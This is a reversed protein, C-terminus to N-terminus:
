ADEGRSLMGDRALRELVQDCASKDRPRFALFYIEKLTQDPLSNLHSVAAPIIVEAVEEVAVGGDGSGLLPILISEFRKRGLLVRLLRNNEEDARTLLKVICHKLKTKDAKVGTGPRGEVAAVHFIRQVQHTAKLAGSETVLVTGINVYARQGVASRLAEAITDEILNDQEDRNAGLSRIKASISRGIIRDMMMDTNESNVWISVGRIDDIGGTKYGVTLGPKDKLRYRVTSFALPESAPPARPLGAAEVPSKGDVSKRHEPQGGAAGIPKVDGTSGNALREFLDNVTVRIAELFRERDQRSKLRGQLWYAAIALKADEIAGRSLREFLDDMPLHVVQLDEGAVGGGEGLRDGEGVEAFFLFLRESTGGPSPFFKGILEPDSIRYGAEEMTERIAAAQPTENPEIIGAIAEIIWADAATPDARRRGILAPVRFQDVVVVSKTDSNLLLVAVSDGREFVLRREDPSMTGDRRQHSVVVEDIRFCDDFVRDQKRIDVRRPPRM